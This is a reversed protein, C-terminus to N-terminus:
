ITKFHCLASCKTSSWGVDKTSSRLGELIWHKGRECASDHQRAGKHGFTVHCRLWIRGCTEHRTWMWVIACLTTKSAVKLIFDSWMLSAAPVCASSVFLWHEQEVSSRFNQLGHGGWIWACEDTHKVPPNRTALEIHTHYLFAWKSYAQMQCSVSLSYEKWRSCVTEVPYSVLHQAHGHTSSVHVGSFFNEELLEAWMRAHETQMKRRIREWHALANPDKGLTCSCRAITSNLNTYCTCLTTSTHIFSSYTGVQYKKLWQEWKKTRARDVYCM